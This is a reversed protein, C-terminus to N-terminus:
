TRLILGLRTNLFQLTSYVKVGNYEPFKSLIEHSTLPSHSFSWFNVSVKLVVTFSFPLYTTVALHYLSQSKFATAINVINCFQDGFNELIIKFSPLKHSSDETWDFKNHIDLSSISWM